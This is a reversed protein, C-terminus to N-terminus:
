ECIGANCVDGQNCCDADVTCGTQRHMACCTSEQCATRTGAECCDANVACSYAVTKCGGDGFAASASPGSAYAGAAFFTSIVPAALILKGTGGRLLERRSLPRAPSRSRASDGPACVAGREAKKRARLDEADRNTDPRGEVYLGTAAGPVSSQLLDQRKLETIVREVVAGADDWDISGEETLAHAIDRTTHSGDCANWVLLTTANFRHVAGSRPDYLVAEGDLEEFVLDNRRLLIPSLNKGPGGYTDNTAM